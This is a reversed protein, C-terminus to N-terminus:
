PRRDNGNGDIDLARTWAHTDFRDDCRFAGAQAGVHLVTSTIQDPLAASTHRVCVFQSDSVTFSALLVQRQRQLQRGDPAVVRLSYKGTPRHRVGSSRRGIGTIQVANSTRVSMLPVNYQGILVFPSPTTENLTLDPTLRAVFGDGLTNGPNGPAPQTGGTTGPFM